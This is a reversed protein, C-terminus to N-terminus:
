RPWVPQAGPGHASKIWGVEHLWNWHRTKEYGETAYFLEGCSCARIVTRNGHDYGDVDISRCGHFTGLLGHFLRRLLASVYAMM